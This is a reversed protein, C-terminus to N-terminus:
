ILKWEEDSYNKIDKKLRPLNYKDCWKRVANDSVKYESAISCFSQTRIKNKLEERTIYRVNQETRHKAECKICRTANKSIECGCDKCYYKKVNRKINKGNTTDLQQNCNPCVWRLNELRNDNNIGNIHDLILTLNKNQWYPQQGCISCFYEEQTEKIFFRRLTSQTATSKKIFVNEKTRKIGKIPKFHSCDINYLNIQKKVTKHNNGSVTSYGVRKVVERISNSHKVINELEEKSYQSVLSKM